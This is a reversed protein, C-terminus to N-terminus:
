ETMEGVDDCEFRENFPKRTAEVMEKKGMILSDDIWSIVVVLGQEKEWRFYLCPDADSRMLGM